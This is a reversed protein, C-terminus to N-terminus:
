QVQLQLLQLAPDHTEVEFLGPVDATFTIVAPQSPTVKKEVGYGHVHVADTHDSKVILRVTQGQNVQVRRPAPTVEGDRVAAKITMDAPPATNEGPKGEDHGGGDHGHGNHDGTKETHTIRARAEVAEGKVAWVSHDNANLEVRLTHKGTAVMDPSLYYWPGYLRTLKDGDVYLRAHGTNPTPKKNAQAPTFRFRDTVLHLNWGGHPDERVELQLRPAQDAPVQRLHHDGSGISKGASGADGPGTQNSGGACGAALALAAGAVLAACRAPTRMHPHM